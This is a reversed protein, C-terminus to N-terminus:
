EKSLVMRETGLGHCTKCFKPLPLSKDLLIKRIRQFSSNNWVDNDQFVNGYRRHPSITCCPSINGNGDIPIARFPETCCRETITRKYLKPLTVTLKSKPQDISKIVEVVDLDDEYLCQDELFGPIGCPILNNLFIEDIYLEEALRIVDPINKYNAKTCIYSIRLEPGHNIKDRKEVLETINGIVTDFVQKSDEHMKKYAGADHADLSINMSSLASHIIQDIKDNLITGNTSIETGMKNKSGFEIMDFIDKNLFPEGGSFYIFQADIFRNIIKKFNDFSMDSFKFVEILTNDRKRPCFNCKQTCRSTVFLNLHIPNYRLYTSQCQKSIKYKVMNWTQPLSHERVFNLINRM